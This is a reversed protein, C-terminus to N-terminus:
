CTRRRGEVHGQPECAAALRMSAASRKLYSPVDALWVVDADQTPTSFGLGGRRPAHPGQRGRIRTHESQFPADESVSRRSVDVVRVSPPLSADGTRKADAAWVVVHDRLHLLCGCFTRSFFPIRPTRLFRVAPPKAAQLAKRFSTRPLQRRPTQYHRLHREPPAPSDPSPCGRRACCRRM